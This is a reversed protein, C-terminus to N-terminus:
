QLSEGGDVKLVTGNIWDAEPLTLLYVANGVDEARTMRRFPNRAAAAQALKDSGPIMRFSPTDVAGAQICNTTLGASALEIAMQRMLAELTAKAASVAGYGKWVRSNGESTFAINRAKEAFKNQRILAQTWDLWSSGMAYLTIALDDPGISDDGANLPKVSGKAISHVLLKVSGAPLASVVEQMTETKLADQNYSQVQVGADRFGDFQEHVGALDSRRTRHVICLNMGHRALKAATALGLGSSGGLILAWHTNSQTTM